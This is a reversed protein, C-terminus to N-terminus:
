PAEMCVHVGINTTAHNVIALVHFCGLYGDVSSYIFTHIHYVCVPVSTMFLFSVAM